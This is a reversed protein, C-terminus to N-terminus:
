IKFIKCREINYIPQIFKFFIIMNSIQTCKMDVNNGLITRTLDSLAESIQDFHNQNESM